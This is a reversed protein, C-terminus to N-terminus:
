SDPFSDAVSNYNNSNAESLATIGGLIAVVMLAVILGYEVATAGDTNAHYKAFLSLIIDM